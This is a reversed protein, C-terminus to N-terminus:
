EVRLHSGRELLKAGPITRPVLGTGDCRECRCNGPTVSEGKCEPCRVKEALAKRIRQTNPVFGLGGTVRKVLEPPLTDLIPLWLANWDEARITLHADTEAVPIMEPSDVELPQLGGNKQIRLTNTASRLEKVGFRQMVELANVKLRDM